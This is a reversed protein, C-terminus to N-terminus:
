IIRYNTLASLEKSPKKSNMLYEGILFIEFRKNVLSKFEEFSSIGSECIINKKSKLNKTLSLSHSISVQMNNLNRNNIGVLVNQMDRYKNFNEKTHVEIIVDMGLNISLSLCCSYFQRSSFWNQFCFTYNQWDLLGMPKDPDAALIKTRFPGM